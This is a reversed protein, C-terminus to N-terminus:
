AYVNLAFNLFKNYCFDQGLSVDRSYIYIYTCNLCNQIYISYHFQVIEFHVGNNLLRDTLYQASFSIILKSISMCIANPLTTFAFSIIFWIKIM